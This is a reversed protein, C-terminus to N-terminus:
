KNYLEFYKGKKEILKHHKGEELVGNKGIVIIRDANKITSLRHAIVLTTRNISLEALSNQINKETTNDLSSTAEDLILIRPDKLFVRAISLRQKQGGSLKIGREGIETDLGNKQTTIFDYIKAKKAAELIEEESAKNKGYLINERITGNFLFVDQQIIGINERLSRQSIDRIDIGDIKISGADVDYFRPILSCLTTKGVGSEGVFAIYEGQKISLSFNSLIYNQGKNYSFSINEIEIKGKSNCLTVANNKDKIEPDTEMIEIFRDFGAMGKQYNEFLTVIRRLPEMFRGIYLLFGMLIGVTMEEKLIFVGGFYTVVLLNTYMMFHIFSFYEASIKFSKRRVKKFAKNKNDFKKNEFHENTYAKVVRIGAISDEAQSNIEAIKQRSHNFMSKMSTRKRLSYYFMIPILCLVILALKVNMLFMLIFAGSLKVIALFFDEPGKHALEAIGTLDNVIRSILSGTKNNDFFSVSLKQIHNFLDKRMDYEIRLGLTRGWYQVIYSLFYRIINLILVILCVTTFLKLNKEPILEDISYRVIAPFILDIGSMFFACSLDLFFLKKHAKYYKIFYNFRIM